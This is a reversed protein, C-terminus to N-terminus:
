SPLIEVATIFDGFGLVLIAKGHLSVKCNNCIGSPLEGAQVFELALVTAVASASAFEGIFHRYDIIPGAFFTKVLFSDLQSEGKDKFVAPIGVFIAGYEESIREFGGLKGVLTEIIDESNCGYSFFASVIRPGSGVAAPSLVLAAGGDSPFMSQAVSGDFLPSLKEHYEDAGILLAVDGCNRVLLSASFLAQEFSYDGGTVTVNPGTSKFHIAVQGAAANHVSGIFDTPSAFREDSEFLKSLFDYTESLSGWATGFFVSSPSQTIAVNDTAAIALSMVMRSLRKQRRVVDQSLNDM